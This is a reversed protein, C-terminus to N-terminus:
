NYSYTGIIEGLPSVWQFIDDLALLSPGMVRGFNWVHKDNLITISDVKTHYVMLKHRRSKKNKWVHKIIGAKM